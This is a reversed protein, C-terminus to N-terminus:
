FDEVSLIGDQVARAVLAAKTPASRGIAAYKARIRQLHTRVSNPSIFLQRGVLEKSETLFWAVLVERERATLTPRGVSRDSHMAGAMAPGVYAVGNGASRIAEMLHAKDESKAIYSMAGLDLATLIVEDATLHSYVVIRDGTTALKEVATLDPRRSELELDLVTVDAARRQDPRQRLYDSVSSYRGVVEIPPCANDCWLRVGDHIADHDDVVAITLPTGDDMSMSRLGKRITGPNSVEEADAGMDLM